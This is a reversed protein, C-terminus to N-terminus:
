APTALLDFHRKDDNTLRWAQMIAEPGDTPTTQGSPEIIALRYGLAALQELYEQPRVRCRREIHWPSFETILAPRHKQLLVTMGRLAFPEFGEIDMKVVHIASLGQLLEDLVVAQVYQAGAQGPMASDLFGNSGFAQMRFIDPAFSAAVPLVVINKAGSEVVSAYLLRLNQANPELAIVKGTAGVVSAALLAFYGINAGLDIVVNGPRALSRLAAAVHPEHQGTHLIASGVDLDSKRCYLKFQGLDVLVVDQRSRFQEHEFTARLAEEVQGLTAGQSLQFRWHILEDANPGRGILRTFVAHVNADSADGGAASGNVMRKLRSACRQILTKM